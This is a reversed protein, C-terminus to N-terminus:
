SCSPRIQRSGGQRAMTMIAKTGEKVQMATEDDIIYSAGIAKALDWGHIVLDGGIENLHKIISERTEPEHNQSLKFVNEVSEVISNLLIKVVLAISVIAAKSPM